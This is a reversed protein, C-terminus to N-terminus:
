GADPAHEHAREVLDLLAAMSGVDGWHPASNKDGELRDLLKRTAELAKAKLENYTEISKASM